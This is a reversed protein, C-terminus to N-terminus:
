DVFWLEWPRFLDEDIQDLMQIRQYRILLEAPSPPLGARSELMGVLAERSRFAGYITPLYSIMLSVVGLGLGAEVFALVVRGTGEPRVFGLTLLSSGSTVLAESLPDIGTGWFIASFGLVVMVVWVGPLLVLGLPAYMAMVADRREFTSSPRALLDFLWRLTRFHVRTLSSM